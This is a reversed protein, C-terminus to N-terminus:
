PRRSRLLWGAALGAGCLAIGLGIAAPELHTMMVAVAILGLIPVLPVSAISAPVVFRRQLDPRTRRLIIVAANVALFVVYVAFDTVAAIMAFDGFAAFLVAVATVVVTARVPTARGPHVAA